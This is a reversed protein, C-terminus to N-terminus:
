KESICIVLSPFSANFADMAITNLDIEPVGPYKKDAFAYPFERILVEQTMENAFVQMPQGTFFISHGCM